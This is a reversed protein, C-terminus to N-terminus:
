HTKNDREESMSESESERRQKGKGRKRMGRERERVQERTTWDLHCHHHNLQPKHTVIAITRNCNTPWLPPPKNTWNPDNPWSDRHHHLQPDCNSDNPQPDSNKKKKKNKEQTTTTICNYTQHYIATAITPWNPQLPRQITTTPTAITPYNLQPPM